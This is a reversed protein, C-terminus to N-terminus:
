TKFVNEVYKVIKKYNSLIQVNVAASAARFGGSPNPKPAKLGLYRGSPLSEMVKPDKRIRYLNRQSGYVPM